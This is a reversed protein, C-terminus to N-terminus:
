AQSVFKKVINNPTEINSINDTESTTHLAYSEDITKDVMEEVESKEKDQALVLESILIQRANLLM